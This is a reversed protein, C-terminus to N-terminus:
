TNTENSSLLAALAQRDLHYQCILEGDYEIVPVRTDYTRKWDERTDIDHVIVDFQGRVLPLLEELMVECLHCGHRSYVDLTKM